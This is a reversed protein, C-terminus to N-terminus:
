DQFKKRKEENVNWHPMRWPKNFALIRVYFAVLFSIITISSSNLMIQSSSRLRDLLTYVLAGLAPGLAYLTRHPYMIRPQEGCIVDRIIGGGTATMLGSVVCLIPALGRRTAQQAGVVCFAALGLADSTCIFLGSDDCKKSMKPWFYYTLVATICSVELYLPTRMWFVTPHFSSSLSSSSDNDCDYDGSAHSGIMLVDRLTGGGVATISAIIMMGIIDMGKKGGKLAGSFAFVATGFVDLAQLLLSVSTATTTSTAIATATIIIEGGRSQQLIRTIPSSHQLTRSRKRQGQYNTTIRSNSSYNNISRADAVVISPPLFDVLTLGSLLFTCLHFAMVVTTTWIM